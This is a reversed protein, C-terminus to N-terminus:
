GRTPDGNAAGRRRPRHDVLIIAGREIWRIRHLRGCCRVRFEYPPEPDMAQLARLKRRILKDNFFRTARM